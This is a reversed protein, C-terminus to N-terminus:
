SQSSPNDSGAKLVYRARPDRDMTSRKKHELIGKTVMGTLLKRAAPWNTKSTLRQVQSVSIEGHEAIFNIIRKEDGSLARALTEGIVASAEADIWAKRQKKNNRLTVRVSASGIVQFEPKPLNMAAMTDRIRRTGEHAAKVFKLYFMAEMLNPNRPSHMEYINEPTVFPPLPGPSEIVLRDDFMKVFINMNKQGYSRHVCANVIAEYWAAKPYEPAVYFKQDSGLRTFERIQSLLVREIEEIQRPVPGEIFIDKVANFKEGSGEV